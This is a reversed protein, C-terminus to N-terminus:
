TFRYQPVQLCLLFFGYELAVLSRDEGHEEAIRELLEIAGALDGEVREKVLAQQFLDYGDQALAGVAGFSLLWLMVISLSVRKM